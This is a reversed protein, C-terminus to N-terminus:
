VRLPNASRARESAASNLDGDFLETAAGLTPSACPYPVPAIPMGGAWPRLEGAPPSAAAALLTPSLSPSALALLEKGSGPPAHAAAPPPLARQPTPHYAATRLREEWKRM